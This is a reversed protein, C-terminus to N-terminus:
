VLLVVVKKLADRKKTCKETTTARSCTKDLVPAFSLLKRKRKRFKTASRKFEVELFNALM